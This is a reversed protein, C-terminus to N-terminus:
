KKGARKTEDIDGAGFIGPPLTARLARVQAIFQQPDPRPPRQLARKLIYLHEEELSRRHQAARAALASILDPDINHILLDTDM